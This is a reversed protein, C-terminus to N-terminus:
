AGMAISQGSQVEADGCKLPTPRQSIEKSNGPLFYSFFLEGILGQGQFEKLLGQYRLEDPCDSQYSDLTLQRPAPRARKANGEMCELCSGDPLLISNDVPCRMQTSAGALLPNGMRDMNPTPYPQLSQPPAHWIVYPPKSTNQIPEIPINSVRM